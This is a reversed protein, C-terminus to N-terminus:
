TIWTAHGRSLWYMLVFPLPPVPLHGGDAYLLQGAAMRNSIPAVWGTFERDMWLSTWHCPVVAVGVIVLVALLLLTEVLSCWAKSRIADGRPISMRIPGSRSSLRGSHATEETM